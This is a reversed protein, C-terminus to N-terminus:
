FNGDFLYEVEIRATITLYDDSTLKVTGDSDKLIIESGIYLPNNELIKIDLSDLVISRTGTSVTDCVIGAIVPAAAVELSDIVLQPETFLTASDGGLYINIQTGLPLHNIINYIFSTQIAHDTILEIDDQEIDESEIDTEIRTEHIVMELPAIFNIEAYIYDNVTLTGTSVGDGFSALGSIDINSPVPSLFDAVTSDIITTITALGNIGATISDSIHLTKGNDGALTVDVWGPLGVTNEIKIILVAGALEIQDFGKPVDIEQNVPEIETENNSFVGTVSSFGLSNILASVLFSDTASVDIPILNEHVQAAVNLDILQPLSLDSPELTFGSIDVNLVTDHGPAVQCLTVFPLSGQKVDPLTITLTADLASNNVIELQLTGQSLTATHIIDTDSGQQLAVNDSFNRTLSPVTVDTAASVTLDEPFDLISTLELGATELFPGGGGTHCTSEIKVNSSVTKGNLSLPITASTGTTIPTTTKNSDIVIDGNAADFLKVSVSDITLNLNNDIIVEVAGTAITATSFGTLSPLHSVVTFTTEPIPVGAGLALPAIEDLGVIVSDRSPSKISVIGLHESFPAISLDDLTLNVQDIFVTDIEETITYIINSNSDMIVGAQDIRSIIEQMPYTRNILPITLNTTWTPSEPKRVTCQTLTLFIVVVIFSLLIKSSFKFLFSDRFEREGQNRSKKKRTM